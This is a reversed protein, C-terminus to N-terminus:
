WDDNMGNKNYNTVNVEFFNPRQEQNGDSLRSQLLKYLPNVSQDEYIRELNLNICIDNAAKYIFAEISRESFGIIGKTIYTLWRKEAEVMSMILNKAQIKIKEPVQNDFEESLITRYIYKFLVIHSLMEDKQIEEIMECTGSMKNELSYMSVFGGLFVLGELIQNAVCAMLIDEKDPDEGQYLELYMDAVAKNKLALEEDYLHLNYIRDNDKCIDEAMISYSESHLSEEFAQRALCACVVPSTIFTDIKDMLQTTQISDNTILQALILDYTRKENETLKLYNVKDKSINVQDAFWTRNLMKKYLKTAWQHNTGNFNIIGNPNGGIIRAQNYPERSETNFIKKAKM